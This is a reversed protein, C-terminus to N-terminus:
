SFLLSGLLTYTDARVRPESDYWYLRASALKMVCTLSSGVVSRSDNKRTTVSIRSM